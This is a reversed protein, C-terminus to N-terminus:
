KFDELGDIPQITHLNNEVIQCNVNYTISRIEASGAGPRRKWGAFGCAQTRRIAHLVCVHKNASCQRPTHTGKVQTYLM